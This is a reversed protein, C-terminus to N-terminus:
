RALLALADRVLDSLPEVDVRAGLTAVAREAEAGRYGMRTLAGFLLEAQSEVPKVVPAATASAAQPAASLAAALKDKLELIIREATKKGVGPVSQLKQVHGRGVVAALEHATMVGLLALAIKPGVNSVGILTRFAARDDGSPFGYLLLADERVHTHVHLTVEGDGQAGRARGISGLPMTLEYGVGGVDLVVSGDASDDVIRGTLRGIV